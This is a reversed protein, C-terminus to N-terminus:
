AHVVELLLKSTFEAERLSEHKLILTVVLVKRWHPLKCRGGKCFM